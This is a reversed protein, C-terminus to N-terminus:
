KYKKALFRLVIYAIIAIPFNISFILATGLMIGMYLKFTNNTRFEDADTITRFFTLGVTLVFWIIGFLKVFTGADSSFVHFLGGCFLSIISAFLITPFIKMFSVQAFVTLFIEFFDGVSNSRADAASIATQTKVYQECSEVAPTREKDQYFKSLYPREGKKRYSKLLASYKAALGKYDDAILNFLERWNNYVEEDTITAKALEDAKAVFWEAALLMSRDGNEAEAMACAVSARVMQADYERGVCELIDGIQAANRVITDMSEKVRKTKEDPGFIHYESLDYSNLSVFSNTETGIVDEWLVERSVVEDGAKTTMITKRVTTETNTIRYATTLGTSILSYQLNLANAINYGAVNCAYPYDSFNRYIYLSYRIAEDLIKIAKQQGRVLYETDNAHSSADMSVESALNVYCFPISSVADVSEPAAEMYYKLAQEYNEKNYAEEGLQYLEEATM